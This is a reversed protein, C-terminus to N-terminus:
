PSLYTRAFFLASLALGIAIVIHRVTAPAVRRAWRAGGYGGAVAGVAMPLAVSWAVVGALAFAAVAIGNILAGLLVKLGNMAHIDTMGLLALGALMLIGIGGGFYGGYVAIALQLLAIGALRARTPPGHAHWRRTARAGFAFILTAGLLLFPVLRAFTREPTGLLLLAGLLGGLLSIGALPLLTARDRPLDERYGRISAVSGPWLAVTSTANAAIPGVGALLLSPFTLFSGGGAVANMAGALTAAALLLAGQLLDV